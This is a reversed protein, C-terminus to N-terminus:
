EYIVVEKAKLSKPVDIISQNTSGACKYEDSKLNEIYPGDVLVDIYRMVELQKVQEWLYGTYMWITKKDNYRYKVRKCLRTIIARNYIYLPDGGSLTLGDRVSADLYTFLEKEVDDTFEFGSDAEWTIPNHCGPCKHSCGAVWLVTRVGSGNVLSTKTIGLYNM